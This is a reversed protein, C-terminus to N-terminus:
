RMRGASAAVAAGITDRFRLAQEQRRHKRVACERGSRGWQRLRDEDSVFQALGRAVADASLETVCLGCNTEAIYRMTGVEAPGIALIPLEASLYLPLKSSLSLRFYTRQPPEFSDLHLFANASARIRALENDQIGGHLSIRDCGELLAREGEGLGSAYVRLQIARSHIGRAAEAVHRIMQARGHKVNGIYCLVFPEDDGRSLSRDVLDTDVGNLFASTPKGFKTRYEEAMLPSICMVQPARDLLRRLRWMGYARACGGLEGRSHLLPMWDDMFHPVAPCVCLRSIRYALEITCVSGMLSYVAQPAFDRIQQRVREPLRVPSVDLAARINLHLRPRLGRVPEYFGPANGQRAAPGKASARRIRGLVGRVPQTDRPLLIVNGSIGDLDREQGVDVYAHALRDKPWGSFLSRLTVLTAGQSAYPGGVILVRPYDVEAGNESLSQPLEREAVVM